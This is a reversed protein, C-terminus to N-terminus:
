APDRRRARAVLGYLRPGLWGLPPLAALRALWRWAPLRALVLTCAEWGARLEGDSSRVWMQEALRERPVPLCTEPELNLDRFVVQDAGQQAQTWARANRCLGCAGDYWV